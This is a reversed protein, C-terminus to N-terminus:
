AFRYAAPADWYFEIGHGAAEVPTALPIRFLSAELRDMKM